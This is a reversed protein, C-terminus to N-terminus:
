GKQSIGSGCSMQVTLAVSGFFGIGLLNNLAPSKNSGTGIISIASRNLPRSQVGIRVRGSHLAHGELTTNVIVMGVPDVFQSIPNGGTLVVRDTTGAAAYPAGPASMGPLRLRDFAQSASCMTNIEIKYEHPLPLGREPAGFGAGPPPGPWALRTFDGCRLDAGDGTAYYLDCGERWNTGPVNPTGTDNMGLIPGVTRTSTGYHNTTGQYRGQSYTAQTGTPDKFNVPDAGVFALPRMADEDVSVGGQFLGHVVAREAPTLARRSPEAHRSWSKTPSMLM